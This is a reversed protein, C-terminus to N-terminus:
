YRCKKAEHKSLTPPTNVIYMAPNYDRPRKKAVATQRHM